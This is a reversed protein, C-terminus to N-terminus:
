QGRAKQLVALLDKAVPALFGALIASVFISVLSPAIAPRYTMSVWALSGSLVISAVQLM